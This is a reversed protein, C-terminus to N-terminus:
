LKSGIANFVGKIKPGIFSLAGVVIALVMVIIATHEAIGGSTDKFFFKIRVM